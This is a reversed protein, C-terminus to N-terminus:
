SNDSNTSSQGTGGSFFLDKAKEINKIQSYFELFDDNSLPRNFKNMEEMTLDTVIQSVQMGVNSVANIMTKQKCVPCESILKIVNAQLDVVKFSDDTKKAGCASCYTGWNKKIQEIIQKIESERMKNM